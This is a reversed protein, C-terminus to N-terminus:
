KKKIDIGNSAALTVVNLREIANQCCQLVDTVRTPQNHKLQLKGSLNEDNQNDFKGAHRHHDDYLLLLVHHHCHYHQQQVHHYM